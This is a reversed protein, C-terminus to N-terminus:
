LVVGKKEAQKAKNTAKFGIQETWWQEFTAGPIVALTDWEMPYAYQPSTEPLRQMFTFLHVCSTQARLAEIFTQPDDLFRYKDGEIRGIRVVRGQVKVERGCITIVPEQRM